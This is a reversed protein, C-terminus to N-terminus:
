DEHRKDLVEKRFKMLCDQYINLLPICNLVRNKNKLVCRMIEEEQAECVNEKEFTCFQKEIREIADNFAKRRDELEQVTVNGASIIVLYLKCQKNKEYLENLLEENRQRAELLEERLTDLTNSNVNQSMVREIVDNSVGVNRFEEPVEERDIRVTKTPSDESSKGRSSGIGM